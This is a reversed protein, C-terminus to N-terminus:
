DMIKYIEAHENSIHTQGLARPHPNKLLGFLSTDYLYTLDDIPESSNKFSSYVEAIDYGMSVHKNIVTNLGDTDNIGDSGGDGVRNLYTEVTWYCENIHGVKYPNYMTMVIIQADSNLLKLETIIDPFDTKFESLGLEAVDLQLNDFDYSSGYKAAALLNNGGICVTVIEANRIYNKMADNTKLRELLHSARDGVISLNEKNVTAIETQNSIYSAFATPYPTISSLPTVYGDSISDGLAVYDIIWQDVKVWDTSVVTSLPTEHDDTATATVKIYYDTASGPLLYSSEYSKITAGSGLDDTAYEWYYSVQLTEGPDDTWQDDIVTVIKGERIHGSISPLTVNIPAVNPKPLIEVWESYVTSYVGETDTATETVRIYHHSQSADPMYNLIEGTTEYPIDSLITKVQWTHTYTMEDEDFWVGGVFTLQNGVQVNGLIAPLADNRPAINPIPEVFRWQTSVRSEADDLDKATVSLRIYRGEDESLLIYSEETSVLEFPLTSMDENTEWEYTLSFTTEDSWENGIITLSEEVMHIGTVEPPVINVPPQNPIPDVWVWVSNETSFENEEDTATVHVRVYHEAMSQDLVQSSTHSLLQSNQYESDVSEWIYDYVLSGEDEWQGTSSFLTNGVMPIGTIIPLEMNEPPQNPIYIVPTWETSLSTELGEEDRATVMLRIYKDSEKLQYSISTGVENHEDGTPSDSHQWSVLLDLPTEDTWSGLNATLTEDVQYIGDVTPAIVNVPSKNPIPQVIQWSTEMSSSAGKNDTATVVARISKNADESKVIYKSTQGEITISDDIDKVEWEYSITFPNDDTWTGDTVDLVEEVIPFGSIIPLVTNVPPENPIDSIEYWQSYDTTTLGLSDTAIVQVRVYKNLHTPQLEFTADGSTEIIAGNIVDAIMWTTVFSITTEDTWIGVNYTLTQNVEFIGSISPNVNNVPANNTPPNGTSPPTGTSPPPTFPIQTVPPIVAGLPVEGEEIIVIGEGIITENVAVDIESDSVNLELVGIQGKGTAILEENVIMKKIYSNEDVILEINKADVTIQNFDGELVLKSGAQVITIEGDSFLGNLIADGNQELHTIYSSNSIIRLVNGKRLVIVDRLNSNNLYISEKGGGNIITKGLVSVGNLTISGDGIGAALILNGKIIYNDLVLDNANLTLNGEIITKSSISGYSKNEQYYEGVVHDLMVTAEARTINNTAKFTQDPYGSLYGSKVLAAVYDRSWEQISNQDEFFMLVGDTDVQDLHIVHYLIASVEERTIPKDAHLYLSQYWEMYGNYKAILTTQAFWDEAGVDMYNEGAVYSFGYVNNLLTIFEARTITQNPRFTGDPYGKILGNTIWKEITEEAWHGEIDNLYNEGFGSLSLNCIFAIVFFIVLIRRVKVVERKLEVM